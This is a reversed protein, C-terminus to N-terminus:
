KSEELLQVGSEITSTLMNATEFTINLESLFEYIYLGPRTFGLEKSDIVVECIRKELKM